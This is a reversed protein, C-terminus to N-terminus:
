AYWKSMSQFIDVGEKYGLSKLVECMLNDMMIHALESGVCEDYIKRMRRSFEEPTIAEMKEKM